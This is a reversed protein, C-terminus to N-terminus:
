DREEGPLELDLRGFLADAIQEGTLEGRAPDGDPGTLFAILWRKIRTIM